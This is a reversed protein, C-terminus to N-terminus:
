GPPPAPDTTMPPDERAGTGTHRGAEGEWQSASAESNSPRPNGCGQGSGGQSPTGGAVGERERNGEVCWDTRGMQKRRIDSGVKGTGAERWGSPPWTAGNRLRGRTWWDVRAGARARGEGGGEGDDIWTGRSNGVQALMGEVEAQGVPALASSPTLLPHSSPRPTAAPQGALRHQGGVADRGKELSRRGAAMQGQGGTGGGRPERAQSRARGKPPAPQASGQAPDGVASARTESQSTDPYGQQAPTRAGQRIVNDPSWRSKHRRLRTLGPGSM